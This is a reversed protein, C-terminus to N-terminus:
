VKLYLIVDRDIFFIGIGIDGFIKDNFKYMVGLLVFIKCKVLVFFDSILDYKNKDCMLLMVVVIMLFYDNFEYM